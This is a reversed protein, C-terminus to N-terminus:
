YARLPGVSQALPEFRGEPAKDYPVVGKRTGSELEFADSISDATLPLCWRQTITGIARNTGETLSRLYTRATTPRCQPATRAAAEAETTSAVKNGGSNETTM